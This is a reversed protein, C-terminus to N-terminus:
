NELKPDKLCNKLLFLLFYWYNTINAPNTEIKDTSFLCAWASRGLGM